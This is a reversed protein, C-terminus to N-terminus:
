SKKKCIYITQIKKNTKTLDKETEYIKCFYPFNIIFKKKENKKSKLIKKKQMQSIEIKLEFIIIFFIREYDDCIFTPIFSCHKKKGINNNEM